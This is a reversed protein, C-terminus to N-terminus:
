TVQRLIRGARAFAGPPSVAKLIHGPTSVGQSASTAPESLRTLSARAGIADAADVLPFCTRAPASGPSRGADPKSAKGVRGGSGLPESSDPPIRRLIRRSSNAARRWRGRHLSRTLSAGGRRGQPGASSFFSAPLTRRPSPHPSPKRRARAPSARPPLPSPLPTQLQSLLPFRPTSFQKPSTRPNQPPLASTHARRRCTRSMHSEGILLHPAHPQRM